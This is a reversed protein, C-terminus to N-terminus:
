AMEAATRDMEFRLPLHAPGHVHLARRPPWPESTALEFHRFRGLLDTLAVKTELRSLAAGLCFHIGHGFAVHPNPDRAIDFRDPDPFQKPDRNASGIMPLVLKGAPITQGNLQVDRRPTRMMWQLPSRYRLVEEIAAPLLEPNARLRQLEGPNEMFCLMANNILDATTEQGAVLLVQFFGLIDQHSLREGDVEAQTLRTLLDDQPARRREEIMEAVYKGMEETVARFDQLSRAAEEGGSRSYSLRLVVDSWHRYRAWDSLPIGIISAIVKMPLPVSYETALDIENRGAATDLLGRLNTHQPPDFFILWPPAPVRSSFTEVDNLARKVGDYDFILWGDFPPPVHFVPSAARMHAYLPYPNRRNEDSFIDM